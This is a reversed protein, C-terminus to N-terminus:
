RKKWARRAQSLVTRSVPGHARDLEDLFAGFRERELEHQLARAVFSSVGREGVRKRVAKALGLPLSISLKAAPEAM